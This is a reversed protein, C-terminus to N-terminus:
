KVVINLIKELNNDRKAGLKIALLYSDIAAKRYTTPDLMLLIYSYNIRAEAYYPNEDILKDLQMMASMPDGNAVALAASLSRVSPDKPAINKLIDLEATALTKNGVSILAQVYLCRISLPTKDGEVEIIEDIYLIADTTKNSDIMSNILAIREKETANGLTNNSSYVFKQAPADDSDSDKIEETSFITKASPEEKKEKAQTTPTPIPEKEIITPAPVEGSIIKEKIIRMQQACYNLRETVHETEYEPYTNIISSYQGRADSLLVMADTDRGEQSAQIALDYTSNAQRLMNKKESGFISWANADSSCVFFSIFTSILIAQKLFNTKM